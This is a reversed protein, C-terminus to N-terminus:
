AKEYKKWANQKTGLAQDPRMKWFLAPENINYMNKNIYLNIGKQIKQLEKKIVWTLLKQSKIRNTSKSLIGLKLGTWHSIVFNFCRKIQM